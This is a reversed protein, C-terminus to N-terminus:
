EMPSGGPGALPPFIEGESDRGLKRLRAVAATSDGRTRKRGKRIISGEESQASTLKDSSILGRQSRLEYYRRTAEQGPETDGEAKDGTRQSDIQQLNDGEADSRTVAVDNVQLAPKDKIEGTQKNAEGTFSTEIRKEILSLRKSKVFQDYKRECVRKFAEKRAARNNDAEAILKQKTKEFLEFLRIKDEDTIHGNRIKEKITEPVESEYEM